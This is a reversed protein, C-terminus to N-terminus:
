YIVAYKHISESQLLKLTQTQLSGKHYLPYPWAVIGVAWMSGLSLWWHQEKLRAGVINRPSFFHLITWARLGRGGVHFVWNLGNCANSSHAMLHFIIEWGLHSHREFLYIFRNFVFKSSWSVWYQVNVAVLSFSSFYWEGFFHWCPPNGMRNDGNGMYKYKKIDNRRIKIGLERVNDAM